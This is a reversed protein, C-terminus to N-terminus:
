AQTTAAFIFGGPPAPQTTPPLGGTTLFATLWSNFFQMRSCLMRVHVHLHPLVHVCHGMGMDQSTSQGSELGSDVICGPVVSTQGFVLSLSLPPIIIHVCVREGRVCVIVGTECGGVWESM